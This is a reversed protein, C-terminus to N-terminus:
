GLQFRKAKVPPVRLRVPPTLELLPARATPMLLVVVAARFWLPVALDSAVRTPFSGVPRPVGLTEPPERVTVLATVTRPGVFAPPMLREPPVTVMPPPSCM